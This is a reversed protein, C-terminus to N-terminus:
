NLITLFIHTILLIVPIPLLWFKLKFILFSFRVIKYRETELNKECFKIRERKENDILDSTEIDLKALNYDNMVRRYRLATRYYQCLDLAFYIILTIMSILPLIESHFENKYFTVGWSATILGFAIQRGVNSSKDTQQSVINDNQM